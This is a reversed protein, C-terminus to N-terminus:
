SFHNRNSNALCDEKPFQFFRKEQAIGQKVTMEEPFLFFYRVLLLM